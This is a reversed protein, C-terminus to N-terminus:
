CCAEVKGGRSHRQCRRRWERSLISSRCLHAGVDLRTLATATLHSVLFKSYGALWRAKPGTCERLAHACRLHEHNREFSLGLLYVDGEDEDREAWEREVESLDDDEAGWDGEAMSAEAEAEADSEAALDAMERLRVGARSAGAARRPPPM